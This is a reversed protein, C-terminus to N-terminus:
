LTYCLVVGLVVGSQRYSLDFEYKGEFLISLHNPLTLKAGFGVNSALGVYPETVITNSWYYPPRVGNSMLIGAILYYPKCDRLYFHGNLNFESFTKFYDYPNINGNIAIPDERRVEVRPESKNATECFWVDIERGCRGWNQIQLQLHRRRRCYITRQNFLANRVIFRTFYM